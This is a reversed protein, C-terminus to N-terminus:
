AVHVVAETGLQDIILRVDAGSTIGTLAAVNTGHATGAPDISLMGTAGDIHVYNNINAPTVGTGVLVDVINLKDNEGAANMNYDTIIDVKDDLSRIVFIDDGGGGTLIDNGRGGILIDNNASGILTDAAHSGVFTSVHATTSATSGDALETATVAGTMATIQASTLPTPSSVTISTAVEPTVPVIASGNNIAIASGNAGTLTVDAPLNSLTVASLAESGDKDNLAALLNQPVVRNLLSAKM